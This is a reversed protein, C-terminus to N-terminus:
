CLYRLQAARAVRRHGFNVFAAAQTPVDAVPRDRLRYPDRDTMARKALFNRAGGEQDLGYESSLVDGERANCCPMVIMRGICTEFADSNIEATSTAGCDIQIQLPKWVYETKTAAGEIIGIPELSVRGLATMNECSGSLLPDYQRGAEVCERLMRQFKVTARVSRNHESM